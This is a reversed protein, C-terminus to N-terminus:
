VENALGYMVDSRLVYKTGSHVEAGEHLIAHAFLLVNGVKPVVPSASGDLFRTEGGEFGENLYLLLTLESGLSSSPRYAGDRHPKFAQGQSYRYGRFRTNIGALPRGALAAPLAHVLRALLESALQQDDFMVRHNTRIDTRVVPGSATTVPALVPGLAELRDTMKRCEEVSFVAPVVWHLLDRQQLLDVLAPTLYM